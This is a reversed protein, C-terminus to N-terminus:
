SWSSVTLHSSDFSTEPPAQCEKSSALSNTAHPLGLESASVAKDRSRLPGTVEGLRGRSRRPLLNVQRKFLAGAGARRRHASKSVQSKRHSRLSYLYRGSPVVFDWNQRRTGRPRMRQFDKCSTVEWGRM